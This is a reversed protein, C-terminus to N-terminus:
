EGENPELGESKRHLMFDVEMLVDLLKALQKIEDAALVPEDTVATSTHIPKPQQKM